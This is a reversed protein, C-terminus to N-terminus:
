EEQIYSSASSYSRDLVNEAMCRIDDLCEDLFYRLNLSNAKNRSVLVTLLNTSPSIYVFYQNKPFHRKARDEWWETYWDNYSYATCVPNRHKNLVNRVYKDDSVSLIYVPNTGIRLDILNDTKEVVDYFSSTMSVPIGTYTHEESPDFVEPEYVQNNIEDTTMTTQAQLMLTSLLCITLISLLWKM